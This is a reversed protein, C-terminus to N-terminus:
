AVNGNEQRFVPVIQDPHFRTGKGAPMIIVAALTKAIAAQKEEMTFDPKDWEQALNTVVRTRAQQKREFQRLERKLRAEDAEMRELSPWYREPSIQGKEFRRMTENIRDQLDALEKAKPWPSVEDLTSFEIKQQEKIVLAKIYENIPAALRAVKGCGGAGKSPCRYFEELEGRRNQRRAGVMRAGCGNAGCRVFPSLLYRTRYGRGVAGLRSPAQEQKHGWKSVVMNYEDETLIPEWEGRVPKGDPGHLIEGQYVVLGCIRPRLYMNQITMARWPGGNVTPIGRKNWENALTLATVGSEIRPLERRIHMMERRSVHTRDKRWGFPRNPGGNKGGRMAARRKGDTVRRSTNRSEQNRQNVLGRAASIGDDTTLNINGTLSVVHVGYYEVVDILDELTRPDRMARDLDAAILANCEGRRLATLIREWEPRVVQYGFTGDPLRVRQRKFASVDNEPVERDIRGGVSAVHARMDDLQYGIQAERDSSERALLIWILQDPDTEILTRGRVRRPSSTGMGATHVLFVAAVAVFYELQRIEM